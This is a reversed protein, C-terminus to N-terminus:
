KEEEKYDVLFKIVENKIGCLDTWNMYLNNGNKDYIEFIYSRDEKFEKLKSLFKWVNRDSIEEKHIGFPYAVFMFKEENDEKEKKMLDMYEKFRDQKEIKFYELDEVINGYLIEIDELTKDRLTEENIETKYSVKYFKVPKNDKKINKYFTIKNSFPQDVTKFDFNNQIFIYLDKSITERIFNIETEDSKDFMILRKLNSEDYVIKQYNKNVIKHSAYEEQYLKKYNDKFLYLM